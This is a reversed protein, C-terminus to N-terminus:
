KFKGIFNLYNKSRPKFSEFYIIEFGHKILLREVEEKTYFSFWRPQNVGSSEKYEEGIGEIQGLGLYGGKKLVRKIEEFSKDIEARKVHLLSTYAWVGDFSENKFPLNNFDGEISKLGKESSLKIMAHSADICVVDLGREKLLLGDRGPGSGVDLVRDKVLETFKDLFSRPFNSWFDITEEDYEKALQNYTKITQLDM